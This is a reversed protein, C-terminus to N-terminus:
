FQVIPSNFPLLLILAEPTLSERHRLIIKIQKLLIGSWMNHVNQVWVDRRQEAPCWAAPSARPDARVM